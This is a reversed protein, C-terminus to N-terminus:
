TTSLALSISTNSLSLLVKLAVISPVSGVVSRATILISAPFRGKELKPFELLNCIPSHTNAIPDGNSNLDVTVAPITLAFALFIPM